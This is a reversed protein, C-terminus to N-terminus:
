IPLFTFSTWFKFLATAEVGHCNKEKKKKIILVYTQIFTLLGSVLDYDEWLHTDLDLGLLVIWSRNSHIALKGDGNIIEPNSGLSKGLTSM